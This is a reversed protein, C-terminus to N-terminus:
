AGKVTLSQGRMRDLRDHAAHIEGLQELLIDQVRPPLPVRLAHEYLVRAANEGRECELLLTIPSGHELSSRFDLWKRHIWGAVTPHPDIKAGLAVLVKELVRAFMARQAAYEWFLQRLWQDRVDDAASSYGREGDRCVEIVSRLAAIAHERDSGNYHKLLAENRM